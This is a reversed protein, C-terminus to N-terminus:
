SSEGRISSTQRGYEKVTAATRNHRRRAPLALMLLFALGFVGVQFWLAHEVAGAFVRPVSAGPRIILRDIFIVGMLALGISNGLQFGTNLMGAAMILAGSMTVGRGFRPELRAAAGSAVFVGASFPIFTAGAHLPTFGRGQQLFLTLVLGFSAVGLFFVLAIGMGIAFGRQTFMRLEVLPSGDRRPGDGRTRSSPKVAAPGPEHHCSRPM